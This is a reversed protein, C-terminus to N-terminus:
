ENWLEDKSFTDNRDRRAILLLIIYGALDLLTDETNKGIGKNKIRALKDDLRAKLNDEATGQSFINLPKLASDGYAKNKSLLMEVIERGVLKIKEENTVQKMDTM